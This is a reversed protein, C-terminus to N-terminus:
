IIKKKQDAIFINMQIFLADYLSTRRKRFMFLRKSSPSFVNISKWQYTKDYTWLRMFREVIRHDFDEVLLCFRITFIKVHAFGFALVLDYYVNPMGQQLFREHSRTSCQSCAHCGRWQSYNSHQFPQAPCHATCSQRWYFKDERRFVYCRSIGWSQSCTGSSPHILHNTFCIKRSKFILPVLM